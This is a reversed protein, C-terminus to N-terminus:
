RKAARLSMRTGRRAHGSLVALGVAVLFGTGPEPIPGFVLEFALDEEPFEYWGRSFHEERTGTSALLQVFIGDLYPGPISRTYNSSMGTDTSQNRTNNGVYSDLILAYERGEMLPLDGLDVTFSLLGPSTGFPDILTDSEYLINTPRFQSGGVTETILIRFELGRQSGISRTLYVTASEGVGGPAIFTEGRYTFDPHFGSLSSIPPASIVTAFAPSWGVCTVALALVAFETFVRCRSGPANDDMCKDSQPM